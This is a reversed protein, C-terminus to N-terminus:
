IRPLLIKGDTPPILDPDAETCERLAESLSSRLPISTAVTEVSTNSGNMAL